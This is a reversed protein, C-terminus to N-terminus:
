DRAAHRPTYKPRSETAGDRYIKHTAMLAAFGYATAMLTANHGGLLATVLYGGAVLVHGKERVCWKHWRIWLKQVIM